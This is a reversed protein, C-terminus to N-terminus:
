VQTCRDRKVAENPHRQCFWAMTVWNNPVQPLCSGFLFISGRALWAMKSPSWYAQWSTLNVHLCQSLNALCALRGPFPTVVCLSQIFAALHSVAVSNTKTYLDLDPEEATIQFLVPLLMHLCNSFRIKKKRYASRALMYIYSLNSTYM